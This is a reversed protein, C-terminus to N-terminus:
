KLLLCKKVAEIKGNVNLKYLYVGSGVKKGSADKGNWVISHEGAIVQDNLLSKIKQGKINHIDLQVEASEPLSFVIKTEPNFPNPYNILMSESIPFSQLDKWPNVSTNTENRYWAITNDMSSASLVDVYGDNDLDEAHVSRADWAITWIIQKSGFTGLGDLNEYWSIDNGEYSASLIDTDGDIDLDAYWVDNAGLADTTIVHHSDFNGMGDSNEFWIIMNGWFAAVVLDEDGDGDIDTSIVCRAGDADTTIIQQDGFNGFGDLNEYWAVKDDHISASLVDIDGDSDIDSSYVYFAGDTATSIINQVGFNGFGDLNEYWAIKNDQSSASLIDMDNDGDIDNCTISQPCLVEQTVVQKTGFIAEGNINEIWGIENEEYDSSYVVDYFGDNNIDSCCIDTTRQVDTLIPIQISFTGVGDINEYWAVPMSGSSGSIVDNDGDGDLDASLVSNASRANMSIIVEEGFNGLGDLNDFFAMIDFYQSIYFVDQDGDFDYDFSYAFSVSYSPTVIIHPDGFNGNGDLNEYWKIPDENGSTALVDMDGDGDIDACRVSQAFSSTSSIIQQDGFNGQGDSNEYWAIKHDHYSSFLVDMDDDGDLDSCIVSTVNNINTTIIQETEFGTGNLNEFWAIANGWGSLIDKYGDDNIDACYISTLGNFYNCIINQSSFSSSGDINEYIVIEHAMGSGAIIDYDGDNDIDSCFVESAVYLYGQIIQQESFFGSSELNEYWAITNLGALAAVIDMDGDNDMDASFVSRVGMANPCIIQQLGFNNVGDLKEYWAIKNDSYSASILDQDGDGDLDANCIATPNNTTNAIAIQDSFSVQQALIISAWCSFILFYKTKYSKSRLFSFM